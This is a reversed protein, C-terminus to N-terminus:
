KKIFKYRVTSGDKLKISAIYIGTSLHRVDPASSTYLSAGIMRGASNFISIEEILEENLNQFTLRDEVPNAFTVEPIVNISTWDIASYAFTGDLDVMKLRYYNNGPQPAKDSFNYIFSAKSEGQALEKGIPSWNKGNLSRQIEFYSSNTESSTSWTLHSTAGEINAKFSVLTVPLTGCGAVIESLDSCGPGNYEIQAAIGGPQTRVGVCMFEFACDSLLPNHHMTVRKDRPPPPLHHLASLDSLLPNWSLHLYDLKQLNELGDLSAIKTHYLSLSGLSKLNSFVSLSTIEDNWWISLSGLSTLNSLGSISSVTIYNLSLGGGISTLHSLGDLNLNTIFDQFEFHLNSGPATCAPYNTKFNDVQAQTTIKGTPCQAYSLISMCMFGLITYLKLM